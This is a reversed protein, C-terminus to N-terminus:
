PSVKSPTPPNVAINRFQYQIDNDIVDDPLQIYGDSVLVLYRRSRLEFGALSGNGYLRAQTLAQDGKPKIESESRIVKWETLVLAESASKISPTIELKTGLILDTREGAAMAKFAWIGFLLLHTSGLRECATEGTAFAAQWNKQIGPDAIISRQLHLFAREILNRAAAESDTISYSFESRFSGLPALAQLGSWGVLHSETFLHKRKNVFTKLVEAAAPPLVSAYQNEFTCIEKYLTRANQILDSSVGHYDSGVGQGTEFFFSTTELLSAIRTSIAQWDTQWSM